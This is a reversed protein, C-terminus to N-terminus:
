CFVSNTCPGSSLPRKTEPFALLQYFVEVSNYTEERGVVFLFRNAEERIRGM